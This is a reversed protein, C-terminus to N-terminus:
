KFYAIRNECLPVLCLEDWHDVWRKKTAFVIKCKPCLFGSDPEVSESSSIDTADLTIIEHDSGWQDEIDSELMDTTELTVIEPNRQRDGTATRNTCNIMKDNVPLSNIGRKGLTRSGTAQQGNMQLDIIEITAASLASQNGHASWQTLDSPGEASFDCQCCLYKFM